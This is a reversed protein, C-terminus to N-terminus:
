GPGEVNVSVGPLLTSWEGGQREGLLVSIGEKEPVLLALDNLETWDGRRGLAAVTGIV